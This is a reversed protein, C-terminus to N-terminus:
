GVADCWNGHGDKFRGGLGRLHGLVAGLRRLAKLNGMEKGEEGEGDGDRKEGEGEEEGGLEERAERVLPLLGGWVEDTYGRLVGEWDSKWEEKRKGKGKGEVGNGMEGNTRKQKRVRWKIGQFNLVSGEFEDDEEEEEEEREDEREREMEGGRDGRWKGEGEREFGPVLNLSSEVDFGEHVEEGMGEPFLDRTVRIIREREASSMGMWEEEYTKMDEGVMWEESMGHNMGIEEDFSVGGIRSLLDRVEDGDRSEQEPVSLNHNYPYMNGADPHSITNMGERRYETEAVKELHSAPLPEFHYLTSERINGARPVPHAEHQNIIGQAAQSWSDEFAQVGMPDLPAGTPAPLAGYQLGDGQGAQLDNGLVGYSPGSYGGGLGADGAPSLSPVADLFESFEKENQQIWRAKEDGGVAHGNFEGNGGAGDGQIGSTGMNGASRMGFTDRDRVKGGRGESISSPGDFLGPNGTHMQANGNGNGNGSMSEGGKGGGAARFVGRADSRLGEGGSGGGAGGVFVDRGLGAASAGIRNLLSPTPQEDQHSPTDTSSYQTPAQFTSSTSSSSPNPSKGKGKGKAIPDSSTM